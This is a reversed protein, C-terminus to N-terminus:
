LVADACTNFIHEFSSFQFAGDACGKRDGHWGEAAAGKGKGDGLWGEAAGGVLIVIIIVSETM